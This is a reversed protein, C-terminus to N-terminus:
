PKFTGGLAPQSEDTVKYNTAKKLKQSVSVWKEEYQPYKSIFFLKLDTSSIGAKKHNAVEAMLAQQIEESLAKTLRGSGSSVRSTKLEAIKGGFDSDFRLLGNNLNNNNAVTLDIGADRLQDVDDLFAVLKSVCDDILGDVVERPSPM